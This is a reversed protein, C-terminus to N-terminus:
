LFYEKFIQFNDNVLELRRQVMPLPVLETLVAVGKLMDLVKPYEELRPAKKKAAMLVVGDKEETAPLVRRLQPLHRHLAELVQHIQIGRGNDM